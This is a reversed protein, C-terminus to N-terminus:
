AGASRRARADAPPFSRDADRANLRNSFRWGIVGALTLWSLVLLWPYGAPRYTFRVVNEGRRVPVARFIFNAGLMSVPTANVSARWGPAWRDTVMLWGSDPVSLRLTMANPGYQVVRVPVRQAAPVSDIHPYRGADLRQSGAHLMEARTHVVLPWAGLSDTRRVFAAFATDTLPATAVVSAFWMRDSGSASARLVPHRSMVYHFDNTFTAYARLSPVKTILQDNAWCQDASWPVCVSETRFLGARTLDLSREHRADLARWRRADEEGGEIMLRSLRETLLADASAVVVLMLPVWRRAEPRKLAVLGVAVPALWLLVLLPGARGTAVPVTAVFWEYGVIAAAAVISAGVVLRSWSVGVESRVARDVVKSGHLALVALPFVFFLRFVASHRFFRTPYVWDYLWGRLPLSEGMAAVLGLVGIGLLWWLWPNRRHSALACLALLPILVGSYVSVMSVNTWPWVVDPFFAKVRAPYASTLTVVAAPPLENHGAAVRSLPESRSHVGRGELLEGVYTPSLVLVGVAAMIGLAATAHRLAAGLPPSTRGQADVRFLVKGLVWLAAFCATLITISPHGALAGVGWIAGAQAAHRSSKRDLALDLQWIIWPLWSFGAVFTTHQAHGTYVGSFLYGLAVVCAGWAPARLHRALVFIGAGGLAWHLLWYALFGAPNGGFLLGFANVIPSFAGVQPESFSPLGGDTWPDWRLFTGARVHDAVLVFRPFYQGDADWIGVAGGTALLHNAVLFVVAAVLAFIVWPRISREPLDVRHAM